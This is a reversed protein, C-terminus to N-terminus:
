PRGNEMNESAAGVKAPGIYRRAVVIDDFFLHQDYPSRATGGHYVNLWIEEIRISEIDRVRVDNREFVRVGDVWVKLVGDRQGLTNVRFYQEICYWRNNALASPRGSSWPWFEGYKSPTDAHYAYTGIPTRGALPHQGKIQKGFGGRMSWGNQGDSKRGGWGGRDYTGAIGPLKGGDLTPRWDDALRLYYRFYVEDPEGGLKERFRYTLDLGLHAGQAINVRLARGAFPAFKLDNDNAVVDFTPLIGVHSWHDKWAATEFDEVFLVAPDHALAAANPYRAALGMEPEVEELPPDLAFAGLTLAGAPRKAPHLRVVGKVPGHGRPAPRSAAFRVLLTVGQGAQLTKSMGLSKVTSCLLHTDAAASVTVQFGDAYTLVLVPRLAPDDAERSHFSMTGRLASTQRILVSVDSRTGALWAHVLPTVDFDISQSAETVTISAQAFPRDGQRRDAADRWDGQRNRWAIGSALDYNLCTAGAPGDDFPLEQKLPPGALASATCGFVAVASISLLLRGFRLTM